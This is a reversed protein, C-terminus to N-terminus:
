YTNFFAHVQKKFVSIPIRHELNPILNITYATDKSANTNLFELTKTALVLTDEWGLAFQYHTNNKPQLKEPIEQLVSRYTLAPNFLLAKCNFAMALYYGMFGGMSSGIICDIKTNCYTEYLYNFMKPNSYYDMDPVISNGFEKLINEKETSLKSELGHLYLITM